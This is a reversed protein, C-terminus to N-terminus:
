RAPDGGFFAVRHAETHQRDPPVVSGADASSAASALDSAKAAESVATAAKEYAEVTELIKAREKAAGAGVGLKADLEAERTLAALAADELRAWCMRPTTHRLQAWGTSLALM